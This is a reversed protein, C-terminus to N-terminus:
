KDQGLQYIFKKLLLILIFTIISYIIFDDIFTYRFDDFDWYSMRFFKRSGNSMFTVLMGSFLSLAINLHIPKARKDMLAFHVVFGIFFLIIYLM